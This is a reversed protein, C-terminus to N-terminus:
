TVDSTIVDVQQSNMNRALKVNRTVAEEERERQADRNMMMEFMKTMQSMPDVIPYRESRREERHYPITTDSSFTSSESSLDTHDSTEQKDRTRQSSRVATKGKGTKSSLETTDAKEQDM